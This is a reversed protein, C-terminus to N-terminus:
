NNINNLWTWNKLSCKVAQNVSFNCWPQSEKRNMAFYIANFLDKANIDEYKLLMNKNIGITKAWEICKEHYSLIISPTDVCFSFINAHLRMGIMCGLNSMISLYFLPNSNYRLHKIDVKVKDSLFSALKSHLKFDGYKQNGNLELIVVKRILDNHYSAEIAEAIAKILIDEKQPNNKIINNCNCLSIGITNKNKSYRTKLNNFHLLLPALDFTHYINAKPCLEKGREYSIYDRVGIFDLQSLFTACSSLSRKDKFPGISVGVAFALSGKKTHMHNTFQKFFDSSHFISGGCFILYNSLRVIKKTIYNDVIGMGRFTFAPYVPFAQYKLPEPIKSSLTYITKPNLYQKIAPICVQLFADDGANDMGIYGSLTAVSHQRLAM